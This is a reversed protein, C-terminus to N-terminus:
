LSWRVGVRMEFLNLAWVPPFNIYQNTGGDSGFSYVFLAPEPTAYGTPTYEVFARLKGALPFEAGVVLQVGFPLLTDVTLSGGDPISFRLLPGAGVYFRTARDEPSLYLGLLLFLQSLPIGALAQDQNIALGARFTTLGLRAFAPFSPISFNASVGPFFGDSFTADLRLWPSQAQQVTLETQGDLYISTQSPIYGRAAARFSYPAPSVLTVSATGDAGVTLAQPMLGTITTGPVARITLTVEGLPGRSYAHSVLPPYKKVVPPVVDEWRERFLELMSFGEPRSATFDLSTINYLLDFAVVRISPSGRLGSIRMSLWCDAGAARAAKNRDEISSPFPKSGYDIATPAGDADSLATLFSRKLIVMEDDSYGAFLGKEISFLIRRPAKEAATDAPAPDQALVVVPAALLLLLTLRLPLNRMGIAVM